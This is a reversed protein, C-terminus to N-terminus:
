NANGTGSATERNKNAGGDSGDGQTDGSGPDRQPRQRPEGSGSSPRRQGQGQGMGMGPGQGQGRRPFDPRQGQGGTAGEGGPRMRREGAEGMDQGGTPPGSPREGATGPKMQGEQDFPPQGPAQPRGNGNQQEAESFDLQSTIREPAPERLLITDGEELGDVIEVYLESARGIHIQRQAYGSGDPVYVFAIPGNRFVAQIPIYLTDEVRGIHIDAKCRMSPKLGLDHGNSLLIRVTYDRRNRDM